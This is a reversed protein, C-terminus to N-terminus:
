TGEDSIKQHDVARVLWHDDDRVVAVDFHYAANEAMDTVVRGSTDLVQQPEQVLDVNVTWWRGPDVELSTVSALTPTGGVTHQGAAVLAEVGDRVSACFICEPHSLSALDTLDGSANAYPVLALFYVAVAEAGASDVTAMAAPREPPVSAPDPTPTPTPSPTVAEIPTPLHAPEPDNTCGALGGTLGAVFGMAVLVSVACQTTTGRRM